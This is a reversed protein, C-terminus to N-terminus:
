VKKMVPQICDYLDHESLALYLLNTDIKLNEFKTVDCYIDFTNIYLELMRLKAYQQIFFGVIIPGKHEIESKVLEVECLQGNISGLRKCVKNSIAGHTTEDRLYKIVTSRNRDMIQYGYSSNALLKMTEAVVRSNPNKDRERRAIVASQVLDNFCKM